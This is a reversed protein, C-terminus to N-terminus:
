RTAEMELPCDVGCPLNDVICTHDKKYHNRCGDDYRYVEEM